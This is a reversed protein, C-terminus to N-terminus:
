SATCLVCLVSLLVGYRTACDAQQKLCECYYVGELFLFVSTFVHAIEPSYVVSPRRQIQERKWMSSHIIIVTERKIYIDLNGEGDPVIGLFSLVVAKAWICFLATLLWPIRSRSTRKKSGYAFSPNRSHDMGFDQHIICLLVCRPSRADYDTSIKRTREDEPRQGLSLLAGISKDLTSFFFNAILDRSKQLHKARLLCFPM